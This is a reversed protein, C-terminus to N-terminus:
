KRFGFEGYIGKPRYMMFVVLLGGYLIQRMNAAIANPIDILRLLEPITVLLIAGMISGSLRGAGGVIVISLM